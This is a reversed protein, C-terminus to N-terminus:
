HSVSEKSLIKNVISKMKMDYGVKIADYSTPIYIDPYVGTGKQAVHNYQVLRYLPIRVRVKTNPLTIYPIMIGNNGYWGGGTEEGAVVIDKQGKVVNTFLCSASFTPGSILVYVKGDFHNKKKPQYLKREYKRLHFKEDSKKSSIFIMELDNLYGGHFYKRFPRLTQTTAYVSDAVKFPTRSIYKTFLTSTNVDGGGNIRIDVILNSINDKRLKRFSKRFFPRLTHSSFTNIRMTAFKGSSDISLSRIKDKNKISSINSNHNKKTRSVKSSDNVPEFLPLNKNVLNGASDLYTVEYSKSLGYISRHFVPFNTSLRVYSVNHSYGDESLHNLMDQILVPAPIGNISKVITGNKLVSDDKNLNGIIVMSDNWIKLSLPFSPIKKEAAWKQYSSSMSVSTHGCHIKNIYPAIINWVFERETLSDQILDYCKMAYIDMSDKSTYWYLSPHKSELTTKLLKFDQQLKEKTYKKGPQYNKLGVTCSAFLFLIISYTATKITSM